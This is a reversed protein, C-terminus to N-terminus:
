VEEQLADKFLQDYKQKRSWGYILAGVVPITALGKVVDRRSLKKQNEGM